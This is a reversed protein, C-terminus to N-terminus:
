LFPESHGRVPKHAGHVHHDGSKKVRGGERAAKSIGSLVGCESAASGRVCSSRLEVLQKQLLKLERIRVALHEIHEDILANIDSCDHLPSDKMRLLSRVEDLTM